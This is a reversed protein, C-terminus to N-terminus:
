NIEFRGGNAILFKLGKLLVRVNVKRVVGDIYEYFLWPSM